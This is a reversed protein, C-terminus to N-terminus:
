GLFRMLLGPDQVLFLHGADPIVELTANPIRGHARRAVDIPVNGDASGHLFVTPVTISELPEPLERYYRRLDALTAATGQAKAERGDIASNAQTVPSNMIARDAAPWASLANKRTRAVGTGALLASAIGPTWRAAAYLLSILRIRHRLTDRPTGPVMACALILREVRAPFRAALALAYGGGGSFGVLAVRDAGLHDLIALADDDWDHFGRDPQGKGGLPSTQGYGPRDPFVLRVGAAVASEHLPLGQYRSGPTGHAALAIRGNPDGYECWAIRRGTADTLVRTEPLTTM